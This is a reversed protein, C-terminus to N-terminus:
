SSGATKAGLTGAAAERSQASIAATVETPNLGYAQLKQPNLWIRMSYTKGGFANPM